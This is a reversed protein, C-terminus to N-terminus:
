ASYGKRAIMDALQDVGLWYQSQFGPRHHFRAPDAILAAQESKDYGIVTIYHYITEDDPYGPPHNGPPAVINAVIPYNKDIDTVIDKWLLDREEDTAVAGPILKNEYYGTGLRDNLASTILGIHATGVETNTGLQRVLEEQSPPNDMRASLAIRTSAPGCWHGFDQTQFDIDLVKRDDEAQEAAAPSDQALPPRMPQPGGQGVQPAFHAAKQSLPGDQGATAAALKASLVEKKEAPAAQVAAELKPALSAKLEPPATPKTAAAAMKAALAVKQEAPAVQAAAQLKAAQMAKQETPAAKAAATGPPVAGPHAGLKEALAQPMGSPSKSLTRLADDGLASKPLSAAANGLAPLLPAVSPLDGGMDTMHSFLSSLAPGTKASATSGPSAIGPMSAVPLPSAAVSSPLALPKAAARENLGFSSAAAKKLAGDLM